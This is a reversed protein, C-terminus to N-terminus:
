GDDLVGSNEVVLLVTIPVIGESIKTAVDANVGCACFLPSGQRRRWSDVRWFNIVIINGQAFIGSACVTIIVIFSFNLILTINMFM